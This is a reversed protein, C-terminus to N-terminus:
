QAVDEGSKSTDVKTHCKLPFSDVVSAPAPVSVVSLSLSVPQRHIEDLVQVDCMVISNTLTICQYM